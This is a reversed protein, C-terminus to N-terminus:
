YPANTMSEMGGAVILDANGTLLAETGPHVLPGVRRRERIQVVLRVLGAKAGIRHRGLHRDLLLGDNRAFRRAKKTERLPVFARLTKRIVEEERRQAKAHNM